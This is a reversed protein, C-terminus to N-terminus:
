SFPMRLSIRELRRVRPWLSRSTWTSPWTLARTQRSPMRSPAALSVLANVQGLVQVERLKHGRARLSSLIERRMGKEYLVEDPEGGRYLRASRVAFDLSIEDEIADLMVNIMATAAAGGGSAAAAFIADGNVDNGIVVATPSAFGDQGPSPANALIIGTGRAVKGSGFLGNMTVSCAVANSFRDAVVFSAGALGAQGPSASESAGAAPTRREPNFNSMLQELRDEDVIREAAGSGGRGAETWNGSDGSARTAAEVFLHARDTLAEGEYDEVETLIQWLQAAVVGGVSPPPPFYATDSGVEIEIAQALIPTAERLEDVTVPLRAEATLDAYRSAFAGVHFYLARQARIGSLVQALDAQVIQDGERPLVGSGNDFLALLDPRASLEASVDELDRAFARSTRHGFRALNEAPRLLEGWRLIGHRAHMAAIARVGLPVLGGSENAQPRFILAEGNRDGNDFVMCVGGGGLGARSPLTVAMTFYMAVAADVANGGGALVDRGVVAARPEDAAVLGSFEEVVPVAVDDDSTGCATLLGAGAM